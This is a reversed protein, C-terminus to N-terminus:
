QAEQFILQEFGLAEPEVAQANVDLNGVGAVVLNGVPEAHQNPSLQRVKLIEGWLRGHSRALGKCPDHRPIAVVRRNDDPRDDVLAPARLQGFIRLV